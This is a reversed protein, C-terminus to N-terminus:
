PKQINKAAPPKLVALYASAREAPNIITASKTLMGSFLCDLLDFSFESIFPGRPTQNGMIERSYLAIRKTNDVTKFEFGHPAFKNMQRLFWGSEFVM